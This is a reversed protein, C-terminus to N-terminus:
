SSRGNQGGQNLFYHDWPTGVSNNTPTQFAAAYSDSFLKPLASPNVTIGQPNTTDTQVGPQQQQPQSPNQQMPNNGMIMNGLMNGLGGMVGGQGTMGMASGLGSLLAGM